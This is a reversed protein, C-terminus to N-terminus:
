YSSIQYVRSDPHELHKLFLKQL